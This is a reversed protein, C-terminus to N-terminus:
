SNAAKFISEKSNQNYELLALCYNGCETSNMDQVIYSNYGLKLGECYRIVEVPSIAGFSDFCM